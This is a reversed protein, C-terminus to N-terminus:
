EMPYKLGWQARIEDMIHMTNITDQRSHYRNEQAGHRITDAASMIEYEYGNILHPMTVKEVMRGDKGQLEAEQAGWFPTVFIRGRDGIIQAAEDDQMHIASSLVAIIGSPYKMLISNVEDVGYKGIYATSTVFDPVEGTLYNSYTITYIGVDLLAGGGLAPDWLRKKAGYEDMYSFKARIQRVTGIRGTQVWERVKMSIPLFKTWFAEMLMVHNMKAVHFMERADQENIAIPKECLVNKGANMAMIAAEKHESHPIGIYVIDIEPDQVLESYSGYAKKASVTGAFEQARTLDRAAVATIEM